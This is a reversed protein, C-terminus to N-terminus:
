QQQIPAVVLKSASEIHSQNSEPAKRSTFDAQPSHDAGFDDEYDDEAKPKTEKVEVILNKTSNIHELNREPQKTQIFDDQYEDEYDDDMPLEFNDGQNKPAEEIKDAVRAEITKDQDM